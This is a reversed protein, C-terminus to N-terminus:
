AMFIGPCAAGCFKCHSGDKLNFKVIQFGARGILKEGCKHCYTCSSEEDRINGTYVYRLGNKMAIERARTLTSPPTPEITKMKWTPHFASLHLPIDPGLEKAIWETMQGIEAASDNLGPILLTTIELWINTEHKLFKLTDLVPELHGACYKQYFADTFGKLDVNAADMFEYFEARPAPNVYGSTVAVSKIGFSRCAKATDIAYEHFVIPDNYTYAVSPCNHRKATEAIVQPPMEEGHAEIDRAKSIHWNQCHGCMLNCGITGFSLIKSGPLFHHLPKKEVPDIAIGSSFGYTTLVIQGNQCIRVFCIGRQGERLKCAQPCIDCQIRGDTLQHWHKTPAIHNMRNNHSLLIPKVM